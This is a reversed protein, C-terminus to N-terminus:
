ALEVLRHLTGDRNFDLMKAIGSEEERVMVMYSDVGLAKMAARIEVAAKRLREEPTPPTYPQEWMNVRDAAFEVPELRRALAEDEMSVAVPMAALGIPLVASKRMFLRRTIKEM